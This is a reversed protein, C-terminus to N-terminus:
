SARRAADLDLQFPWLRITRLYNRLDNYESSWNKEVKCAPITGAQLMHFTQRANKGIADGIADAGWILELSNGENPTDDNTM